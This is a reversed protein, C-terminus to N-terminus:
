GCARRVPAADRWCARVSARMSAGRTTGCVLSCFCGRAMCVRPRGGVGVWQWRSQAGVELGARLASFPEDLAVSMTHTTGNLFLFTVDAHTAPPVEPKPPPRPIVLTLAATSARCACLGCTM